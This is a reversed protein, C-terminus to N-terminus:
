GNELRECSPASSVSDACVVQQSAINNQSTLPCQIAHELRGLM